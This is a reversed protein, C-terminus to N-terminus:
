AVSSKRGRLEAFYAWALGSFVGAFAGLGFVLLYKKVARQGRLAPGIVQTNYGGFDKVSNIEKLRNLISELHVRDRQIGARHAEDQIEHTYASGAGKQEAEFLKALSQEAYTVDEREQKLLEIKLTGMDTNTSASPLIMRRLADIQRNLALVDAHGAGRVAILKAKQVELAVLQEELSVKGTPEPLAPEPLAIPSTPGFGGTAPFAALREVIASPSRGNKVARELMAIAAEIEARRVRLATLKADIKFLRDQHATSRDTGKWLPPTESLFKQYALEKTQLDKEVMGRAQTLLELTEANANRYTEQLFEQYSAIIANLVKPCDAAVQGRISLNLIENSPNIGPKPADRSVILANIIDTALKQEPQTEPEASALLPGALEMVAQKLDRRNHFQELDQLNEKEIARVIVRRSAILIMHTSLYDEQARAPDAQSIPATEFRKKIVLLQTSSDYWPGALTCFAVAASLGVLLMFLICARRRRLMQWLQQHALLPADATHVGNAEVPIQRVNM